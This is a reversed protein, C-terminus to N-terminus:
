SQALRRAHFMLVLHQSLGLSMIFIILLDFDLKWRGNLKLWTTFIPDDQLVRSDNMALM